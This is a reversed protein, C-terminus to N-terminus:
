FTQLIMREELNPVFALPGQPINNDIELFGKDISEWIIQFPAKGPVWKEAIVVGHGPLVSFVVQRPDAPNQLAESRAFASKIAKVQADTACSVPFHYYSPDLAVHEMYDPHYSAVGRHGHLKSRIVPVIYSNDWEEGLNIRPLVQDMEIMEVAESSPPDNRKGEVDRVIVGSGEAQVDVIFSLDDDTLNAKDVPRASGTVSAILGGLEPEWSAFCGESYQSAIASDLAPVQILDAIRVMPTFFNRNGLELSAIRMAGPVTSGKWQKRSIVEGAVKHETVEDSCVATVIRQVIEPYFTESSEYPIRPHAGVLDFLYAEETTDEGIMLLIRISKSQSQLLRELALIPGGRLGQEILVRHATPALGPFDFDAQNLPEKRLANEFNDLKSDLLKRTTLMVTLIEPSHDLNFRRRKNFLPADRWEIPEFFPASTLLLDTQHNPKEQVKHGLQHFRDLLSDFIQELRPDEFPFIPAVNIKRVWAHPSRTTQIEEFQLFMSSKERKM